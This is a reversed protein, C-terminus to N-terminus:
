IGGHWPFSTIYTEAHSTMFAIVGRIALINKKIPFCSLKEKTSHLRVKKPLFKKEFKLSQLVTNSM